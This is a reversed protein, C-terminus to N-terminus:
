TFFNTISEHVPLETTLNLCGIGVDRLKVKWIVNEELVPRPNPKPCFIAKIKLRSSKQVSNHNFIEAM